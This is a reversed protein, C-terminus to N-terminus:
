IGKRALGNTEIKLIRKDFMFKFDAFENESIINRKLDIYLENM